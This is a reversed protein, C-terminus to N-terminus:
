GGPTDNRSVKKSKKTTKARSFDIVVGPVAAIITRLVFSKVLHKSLKNFMHLISLLRCNHTKQKEASFSGALRIIQM